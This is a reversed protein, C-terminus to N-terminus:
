KCLRQKHCLVPWDHELDARRIVALSLGDAIGRNDDLPGLDQPDAAGHRRVRSHIVQCRQSDRGAPDVRMGMDTVVEAVVPPVPAPALSGSM